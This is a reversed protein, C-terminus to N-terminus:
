IAGELDRVTLRPSQEKTTTFRSLDIRLQDCLQDCVEQSYQEKSIGGMADSLWRTFLDRDIPRHRALEDRDFSVRDKPKKYTVKWRGSIREDLDTAAMHEVLADRDMDKQKVATSAIRRHAAYSEATWEFETDRLAVHDVHLKPLLTSVEQGLVNWEDNDPPVHAEVHEKWFREELQALRTILEADRAISFTVLPPTSELNGAVYFGEEYGTVYLGHQIQLATRDRYGGEIIGSYVWTRPSKVELLATPHGNAATVQRDVNVLAWPADKKRVSQLRRIKRGTAGSWMNAFVDELVRGRLLDVNMDIEDGPEHPRTKEHYIRLADGSLIPWVDSGGIGTRRREHWAEAHSSALGGADITELTAQQSGAM